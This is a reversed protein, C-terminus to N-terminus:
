TPLTLVVQRFTSPFSVKTPAAIGSMGAGRHINKMRNLVANM